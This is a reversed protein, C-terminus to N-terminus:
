MYFSNVNDYINIQTMKLSLFRVIISLCLNDKGVSTDVLADGLVSGGVRGDTLVCSVRRLLCVHKCVKNLLAPKSSPLLLQHPLAICLYIDLIVHHLYYM